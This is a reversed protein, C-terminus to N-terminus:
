RRKRAQRESQVAERLQKTRRERSGSVVIGVIGAVLTAIYLQGVVAELWSLTRAAQSVPTMDGFGVTTLTVFSYYIFVSLRSDNSAVFVPLEEGVSFAGPSVLSIFSYIFAWATGLLLYGAMTGLVIDVSIEEARFLETLTAGVILFLFAVGLLHSFAMAAVFQEPPVVHHWWTALLTFAGLVAFWIRVRRRQTVAFVATILIVSYVSDFIWSAAQPGFLVPEFVLALLITLLLAGFRWKQLFEVKM